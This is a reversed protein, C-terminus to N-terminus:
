ATRPAGYRPGGLHLELWRAIDRASLMGALVEGELVPLQDVDLATLKRLASPVDDAPTAVVLRDRPTMIASVDTHDWAEHPVARVDGISVLGLLRGEEVVPLSQDSSRMFGDNVLDGITTTPPVVYGTRRMLRGVRLGELAQEVVLARYSGEAASSLFWGILALWMGSGAGQGFFPVRAGLAMAIGIAVFSWGLMRGSLSAVFTAKRLDGTVKWVVARLLRGGDLPFGPVLNFAGVM